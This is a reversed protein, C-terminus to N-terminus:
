GIDADILGPKFGPHIPVRAHGIGPHAPKSVVAWNITGENKIKHYQPQPLAYPSPYPSASSFVALAQLDPETPPYVAAGSFFHM